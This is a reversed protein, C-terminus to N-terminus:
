VWARWAGAGVGGGGGAADAACVAWTAVVVPDGERANGDFDLRGPVAARRYVKFKESPHAVFEAELRAAEAEDKAYLLSGM